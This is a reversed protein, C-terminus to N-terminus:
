TGDIRIGIRQPTGSGQRPGAYLNGDKDVFIDSKSNLGYDEKLAHADKYGNEKAAKELQKSSMRKADKAAKLRAGHIGFFADDGGITKVAHHVHELRQIRFQGIRLDSERLGKIRTKRM